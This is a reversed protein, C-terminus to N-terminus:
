RGAAGTALRAGAREGVQLAASGGGCEVADEPLLEAHAGDFQAGVAHESAHDAVPETRDGVHGEGIRDAPAAVNRGVRLDQAM